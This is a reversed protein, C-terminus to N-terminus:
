KLDGITPSLILARGIAQRYKGHHQLLGKIRVKIFFEFLEGLILNLRIDRVIPPKLIPM